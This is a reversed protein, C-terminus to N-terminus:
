TSEVAHDIFLPGSTVVQDGDTLGAIVEILRGQRRGPTIQRRTLSKDAQMVWVHAATGEYVVADDPVAMAVGERDTVIDFAAFMQPRLAGDPNEVEARVPLRHTVPDVAAALYTIRAHFVRTPYAPVRVDVDQGLKVTSLESERVNAILWVKSLDGIVFLPSTGNAQIYQGVGVQRQIVTGPFPARIVAERDLAVASQRELTAIERDSKGLIRLKNQAATHDSEATRLHARANVLDAEAAELDKLAAAKAEFLDRQRQAATEALKLQARATELTNAATTMDGQAQVIETAEVTM